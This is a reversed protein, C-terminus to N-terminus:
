LIIRKEAVSKKLSLGTGGILEIMKADRMKREIPYERSYGYGGMFQLCQKAVISAIDSANMKALAAAYGYDEGSIKVEAADWLLARAGETKAILAALVQQTNEFQAICKGFQERQNVYVISEEISGEAIGVAVAAMYLSQLEQIEQCIDKKICMAEDLQVNEFWITGQPFGKLGLMPAKKEIRIGEMTGDVIMWHIRHEVDVAVIYYGEEDGFAAYEKKGNLVFGKETRKAQLSSKFSTNLLGDSGIIGAYKGGIINKLVDRKVENDAYKEVLEAAISINAYAAATSACAKAIEETILVAAMTDLGAGGFEEPVNCAVLESERLIALGEEPYLAEHDVKESLPKIEAEVLEKALELVMGREEELVYTKM